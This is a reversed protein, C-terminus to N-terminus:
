RGVTVTFRHSRYTGHATTVTAFMTVKTGPKYHQALVSSIRGASDLHSNLVLKAGSKTVRYVKVPAHSARAVTDVTARVRHQTAKALTPQVRTDDNVITGTATAHAVTVNSSPSSLRVTMSSM